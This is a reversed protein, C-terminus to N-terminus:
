SVGIRTYVTLRMRPGGLTQWYHIRATPPDATHGLWRRGRFRFPGDLSERSTVRRYLPKAARCTMNTATVRVTIAGPTVLGRCEITKAKATASVIALMAFAVVLTSAIARLRAQPGILAQTVRSAGPL